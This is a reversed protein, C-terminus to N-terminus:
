MENDNTKMDRSVRGLLIPIVGLLRVSIGLINLFIYIGIEEIGLGVQNFLMAILGERIGVGGPTLPLVVVVLEILALIAALSWFMFTGNIAYVVVATGFVLLVQLCITLLFASFMTLKQFRFIFIAERIESLSSVVTTPLYREFLLRIFRTVRKSFSLCVAILLGLSVVLLVLGIQSNWYNLLHSEIFFGVLGVFVWGIMGMLKSLWTSGWVVGYDVRKSLLYARVIEQASAGPLILAYFSAAFHYELTRGLSLDTACTRLLIWWRVGQLCMSPILLLMPLVVWSPLLSLTSLLTPYDIQLYIWVFPGVIAIGRLFRKAWKWLNDKVVEFNLM